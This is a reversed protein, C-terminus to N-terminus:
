QRKHREIREALLFSLFAMILIGAILVETPIGLWRQLTIDGMDGSLYFGKIWPFVWAFLGMGSMLGIFFVAADGRGSTIGIVSTGPCYGGIVFGIGLIFGGILQPWLYTPVVLVIGMDLAGTKSLIWLGVGSTVIASFMVKLVTFDELYFIATLKRPNGLGGRELLFGFIFGILLALILGLIDSFGYYYYLPAKM